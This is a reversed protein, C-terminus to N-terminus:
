RLSFRVQLGSQEDEQGSHAISPAMLFARRAEVGASAVLYAQVADARQRALNLMDNESVVISNFLLVEMQEPDLKKLRGQEDRPKAFDAAEFAKVIYRLYQEHLLDALPKEGPEITRGTERSLVAGILRAFREERLAKADAESDAMGTIELELLPREHMAKVLDDLSLKAEEDLMASGPAFEVHSLDRSSGFVSGLFSFPSTVIRVLLNKLTHLIIKGLGFEPDDLSGSVPVDLVIRGDRDKLISVALRVPLNVADKSEVRQGFDLQDFVIRNAAKLRNEEVKYTLDLNLKGKDLTYGLYRGSYPSFPTLEIDTFSTKVDLFLLHGLPHIQGSIELPSRNDLLGSLLIQAPEDTLSSLGSISGSLKEMRGQFHPSVFNDTLDIRGDALTIQGTVIPFDAEQKLGKDDIPKADEEAAKGGLVKLLNIQGDEHVIVRAYFDTLAIKGTNVGNPNLGAELQEFFLSKFTVLDQRYPGDVTAVDTLAIQGKYQISPSADDKLDLRIRGQANFDGSVIEIKLRDALYNQVNVVSVQSASLELDAWPPVVKIDGNIQVKGRGEPVFSARIFSKSDKETSLWDAYLNIDSISIDVPEPASDDEFLLNYNGLSFSKLSVIWSNADSAADSAIPSGGNEEPKQSAASPEIKEVPNVLKALNLIGDTDRHIEIRGAKTEVYEVAITRAAFDANAEFVALEPISIPNANRTKEKLVLNKLLLSADAISLSQPGSSGMEFRTSADLLGSQVVFGALSDYYPTYKNLVLQSITAEGEIEFPNAVFSTQVNLKEKSETIATLEASAPAAGNQTDLNALNFSLPSVTSSFALSNSADTLVLTADKISLLDLKLRFQNGPGQKGSQGIEEDSSAKQSNVAFLEQWNIRSNEDIRTFARPQDIELSEVFLDGDLPRSKAIILKLLPMEFLQGKGKEDLAVNKLVLGGSVALNDIGADKFYELNISVDAFASEINIGDPVPAHPAFYALDLDAVAFDAFTKMSPTFPAFSLNLGLPAGNISGHFALNAPSDKLSTLKELVLGWHHLVHRVMDKEDAFVINASSIEVRNISLRPPTSQGAKEAPAEESGSYRDIIDSFNFSNDKHRTLLVYPDAILVKKLVLARRPLSWAQLNAHLRGISIFTTGDPELIELGHLTVSLAFPNVGARALTVPRGTAEELQEKVIPGLIPPLAFFGLLAYLVIVGAICAFLKGRRGLKQWLPFHSM